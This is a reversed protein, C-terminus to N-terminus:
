SFPVGGAFLGAVFAAFGFIVINFIIMIGTHPVFCDYISFGVFNALIAYNIQKWVRNNAKRETELAWEGLETHVFWRWHAGTWLEPHIVDSGSPPYCHNTSTPRLQMLKSVHTGHESRWEMAAQRWDRTM